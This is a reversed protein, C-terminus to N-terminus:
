INPAYATDILDLAAGSAGWGLETSGARSTQYSYVVLLYVRISMLYVNENEVVM